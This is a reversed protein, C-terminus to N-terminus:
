FLNFKMGVETSFFNIDDPFDFEGEDTPLSVYRLQGFIGISDSIFYSAGGKIQYTFSTYSIDLDNLFDGTDDESNLTVITQSIGIGPSIYLNLSGRRNLPLEFRPNLYFAFASYSNDEEYNGEINFGNSPDNIFDELDDTNIGGLGLLFEVDASINKNFKLGGFLSGVFSTSYEADPLNENDFEIVGNPFGAGLTFGAYFGDINRNRDRIRGRRRPRPTSPEENDTELEVDTQSQVVLDSECQSDLTLYPNCSVELTKNNKIDEAKTSLSCGLILAIALATNKAVIEFNHTSLSKFVIAIKDTLRPHTTYKSYTEINTTGINVNSNKSIKM